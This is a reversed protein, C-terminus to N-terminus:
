SALRRYDTLEIRAAALAQRLGPSLLAAAEELRRYRPAADLLDEDVYLAPHCCIETVGPKLRSILKLLHDETMRGDNLLGFFHHNTLLGAAETLRRARRTLWTFILGQALKPLPHDPALALTTRWDEGSLRLAPINYERALDIVLPLLRPHLHLNLHSNLHWLKLGAALAAEIQAAMERRIEPLLRSERFYRWGTIVPHDPFRGRADVLGPLDRPPLVATGQILTLHLGLCLDPLDRALTLAQPAAPAAAMLGASTLVGRRHALAVAANLAPSLGFDDATIILQRNDPM